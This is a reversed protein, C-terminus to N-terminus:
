AVEWQFEETREYIWLEMEGTEPSPFACAMFQPPIEYIFEALWEADQEAEEREEGSGPIRELAIEIRPDLPLVQFEVFPKEACLRQIQDAPFGDPEDTLPGLFPFPDDDNTQTLEFRRVNNTKM